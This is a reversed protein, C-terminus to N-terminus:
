PESVSGEGLEWKMESEREVLRISESEKRM